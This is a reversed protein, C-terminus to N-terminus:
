RARALARAAQLADIVRDVIVDRRQEGNEQARWGVNAASVRWGLPTELIRFHQGNWLWQVCDSSERIVTVRGRLTEAIAPLESAMSSKM